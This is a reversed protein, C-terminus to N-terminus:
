HKNFNAERSEQVKAWFAACEKYFHGPKQCHSCPGVRNQKSYEELMEEPSKKKFPIAARRSTVTSSPQQHFSQSPQFVDRDMRFTKKFGSNVPLGYQPQTREILSEVKEIKKLKSPPLGSTNKLKQVTLWGFKSCDAIILDSEHEELLEKQDELTELARKYKSAKIEREVKKNLHLIKSNVEHQKEINRKHFTHKTAKPEIREEIEERQDQLMRAIGDQQENLLEKFESVTKGGNSRGGIDHGRRRWDSM